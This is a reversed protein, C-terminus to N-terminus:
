GCGSFMPMKLERVSPTATMFSATLRSLSRIEVGYPELFSNSLTAAKSSLSGYMLYSEMSKARSFSAPEDLTEM